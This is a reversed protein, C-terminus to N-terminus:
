LDNRLPSSVASFPTSLASLLGRKGQVLNRTDALGAEEMVFVGGSAEM